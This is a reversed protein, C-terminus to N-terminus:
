FVFFMKESKKKLKFFIPKRFTFVQTLSSHALISSTIGGLDGQCSVEICFYFSWSVCEGLSLWPKRRYVRGNAHCLHGCWDYSFCMYRRCWSSCAFYRSQALSLCKFCSLFYYIIAFSPKFKNKKRRFSSVPLMLTPTPMEIQLCIAM